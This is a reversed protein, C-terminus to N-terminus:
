LYVLNKRSQALFLSHEEMSYHKLFLGYQILNFGGIALYLMGTSFICEQCKQNTEM